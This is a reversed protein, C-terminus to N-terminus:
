EAPSNPNLEPLGCKQAIVVLTLAKTRCLRCRCLASEDCFYRETKSNTWDRKAGTSTAVGIGAPTASIPQVTQLGDCLCVLTSCQTVGHHPRQLLPAAVHVGGSDM